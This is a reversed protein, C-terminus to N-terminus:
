LTPCSQAVLCYSTRIDRSGINFLDDLSLSFTVSNLMPQAPPWLPAPYATGEIDGGHVSGGVGVLIVKAHPPVHFLPPSGPLQSQNPFPSNRSFAAERWLKTWFGVKVGWIPLDDLM